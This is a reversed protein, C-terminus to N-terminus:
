YLIKREWMPLEEDDKNWQIKNKEDLHAGQDSIPIVTSTQKIEDRSVGGQDRPIWLMPTKATICPEYYAEELEVQSYQIRVIDRRVKRRLDAYDKYLNPHFWKWIKGHRTVAHKYAAEAESNAQIEEEESDLSRPLFNMLPSLAENLSIHALVTLVLYFALIILPGIAAKISFLGIMCIEALYIGTLLHQLARPYVLGKTDVDINYVFLLNYRYAQYVLFLGVFAFFLILPAICSYTLAIVGMNTFVPFVNGWSLGTLQTWRNFLRRPTKAFFMTLIKFVLASMIQVVAISSMSLGQLLFYSIYFNSAKPLNQALLDKASLPNKIIQGVAASAASTITTVLFVQVVQFCFHASQTFLEVRSLSPLGAKRACLRCIPPVLSMLLVLAASPLLGSIIGKIFGPLDELWGLFPVTSALYTINSITGVIAAPVSWFIIMAAIGGQVLFKRVIRQWWSLNLASWIVEQPSIGTYRPTMHMPQHHSLTQLAVQAEPQSNFEIFVASLYKADGDRHQRQMSEVEQVAIALRSRYYQISDVKKGFFNVRHMPRKVKRSWLPDSMECDDCVSKKGNEKAEKLRAANAARILQTEAHELCFALKEREDVKQNLKKCDSTIWIRRIGDGFVQRLKKENKYADPVSMFLVTRSSIRDAFAPSNLYTQRLNAYFLSERVVVFIVYTFFIIGMVVHAYYRTPNVINSFSLRDLQTNGGGGTANVPMLVPWLIVMGVFCMTCLMRLFRLFLYGDLSSHHLVHSDAIQFFPAFWNVWGNPLEPTREHHHLNPLHSRPSYWRQQTRRCIIFLGFWFAAIVLAPALTSVLASSSTSGGGTLENVVDGSTSSANGRASGVNPDNNPDTISDREALYRIVTDAM